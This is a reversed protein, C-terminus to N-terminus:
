WCWRIQLQWQTKQTWCRFWIKIQFQQTLIAVLFLFMKFSCILKLHKRCKYKKWISISFLLLPLWKNTVSPPTGGAQRQTKCWLYVCYVSTWWYEFVINCVCICRTALLFVFVIDFLIICYLLTHCHIRWDAVTNQMLKASNQMRLCIQVWWQWIYYLNYLLLLFCHIVIMQMIWGQLPTYNRDTNTDPGKKLEALALLKHTPLPSLSASPLWM